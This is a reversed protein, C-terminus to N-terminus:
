NSDNNNNFIFNRKWSQLNEATSYEKLVEWADNPDIFSNLKLTAWRSVYGVADGVLLDQATAPEYVQQVLTKKRNSLSSQMKLVTIASTHVGQLYQDAYLRSKHGGEIKM